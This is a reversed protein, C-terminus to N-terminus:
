PMARFVLTIAYDRRGGPPPPPYPEGRHVMAVAEEDLSADGSPDTVTISTVQGAVGLTFAVRSRGPVGRYRGEKKAKALKSLVLQSYSVVDSGDASQGPLAIAPMATPMPGLLREMREAVTNDHTTNDPTAKDPTTKDPKAVAPKAREERPKDAPTTEAKHPEAKSAHPPAAPKQAPAKEAKAEPRPPPSPPTPQAPAPPAPVQVVEIPIERPPAPSPRDDPWLILLLAALHVLVSLLIIFPAARDRTPKKRTAGHPMGGSPALAASM